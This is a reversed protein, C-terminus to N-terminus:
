CTSGRGQDADDLREFRRADEAGREDPRRAAGPLHQDPTVHRLVRKLWEPAWRLVVHRCRGGSRRRSSPSSRRSCRSRRRIPATEARGAKGLVRDVEPFQKIIRDTVQLLKQAEAISIGPMTSPMYFLAGEDLPPMFESGLQLFVPVTVVVLVVAGGIVAWKWRLSWRSSRSTSGSSSGASRTSRRPTSGAWWCPTRWGPLAVRPPLRLDARAHPARAAGPRAHHRPGGGRDDLPDEHLRAAQLPARGAGRADAGAPVLRRHRAARLLEPRRWRRSRRRRRGGSLRRTPREREWEELKKHTQEVVVIAADVLAGIAIAIGGLSMINATLGMARFPIFAILVAVPFRSSPFSRARSTGSSSCSRRAVVTLIVEISRRGSTTSRRPPDAGLPRLDPVIESGRRAPRARDRPHKAKVRDIVDLANEGQRMVVIGSVAEGTATSTRCAGGCTRGSRSRGSTGSGSRRARRAARLPRHERLGALSKAYGRGRVM